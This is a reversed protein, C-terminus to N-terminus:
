QVGKPKLIVSFVMFNTRLVSLFVTLFRYFQRNRFIINHTKTPESFGVFPSQRNVDWFRVELRNNLAEGDVVNEHAKRQSEVKVPNHAPNECSIASASLKLLLRSKLKELPWIIRKEKKQRSYGKQINKREAWFDLAIKSMNVSTKLRAFKNLRADGGELKAGTYQGMHVIEQKLEEKEAEQAM